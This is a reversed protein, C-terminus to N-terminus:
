ASASETNACIKRWAPPCAKCEGSQRATFDAARSPIAGPSRVSTSSTGVSTAFRNSPVVARSVLFVSKLNTNLAGDWDEESKEHAPGFVGLGANNVLISIPGLAAETEDVLTAVDASRSVDAARSFVRPVRSQLEAAVSQLAKIDRGCIAVSSGMMALRLAVARGIGRSGGTVLSVAGALPATDGTMRNTETMPPM